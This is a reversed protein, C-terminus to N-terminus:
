VVLWCPAEFCREDMCKSHSRSPAVPAACAGGSRRSRVRSTAYANRIYQNVYICDYMLIDQMYRERSEIRLKSIDKIHICRFRRRWTSVSPEGPMLILGHPADIRGRRIKQETCHTHNGVRRAREVRRLGLCDFAALTHM